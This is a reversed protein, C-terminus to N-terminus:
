AALFEVRLWQGAPITVTQPAADFGHPRVTVTTEGLNNSLECSWADPTAVVNRWAFGLNIGGALDAGPDQDRSSGSLVPYGKDFMTYTYSALQSMISGSGHDGDNWATAFMRGTAQMARIAAINDAFLAFGDRRGLCWFVPPCANAPNAVYAVMDCHAQLTETTGDVVPGPPPVNVTGQTGKEWLPLTMARWRPRDAFLAKFQGPRRLGYRLVGWAGMSRGFLVSRVAQPYTARAWAHLDDVKRETWLQFTGGKQYGMWHTEMGGYPTQVRDQPRLWIERANDARIAWRVPDNVRPYAESQYQAGGSGDWSGSGHLFVVLTQGPDARPVAQDSSLLVPNLGASVGDFAAIAADLKEVISPFEAAASRADLLLVRLPSMADFEAIAADLKTVVSPFPAAASRADLLLARLPTM